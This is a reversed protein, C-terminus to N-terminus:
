RRIAGEPAAARRRGSSSAGRRRSRVAYLNGAIIAAMCPHADAPGHSTISRLMAVPTGGKTSDTTPTSTASVATSDARNGRFDARGSSSRASSRAAAIRFRLPWSTTSRSRVAGRGIVQCRAEAGIPAGARCARVPGNSGSGPRFADGALLQGLARVLLEVREVGTQGGAPQDDGTWGAGALAGRGDEQEPVRQRRALLGARLVPGAHRHRDQDARAAPVRDGRRERGPDGVPDGLNGAEGGLVRCPEDGAVPDGHEDVAQVLDALTQAGDDQPLQASLGIEPQHQETPDVLQGAGDSPIWQDARRADLQPGDVLLDRDVVEQAPEGIRRRRGPLLDGVPEPLPRGAREGARELVREQEGQEPVRVLREVRHVFKQVTSPEALGALDLAVQEVPRQGRRVGGARVPWRRTVRQAGGLPREAEEGMVETAGAGVAQLPPVHRRRTRGRRGASSKARATQYVVAIGILRSSPRDYRSASPRSIVLPNGTPRSM